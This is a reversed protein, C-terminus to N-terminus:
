RFLMLNLEYISSHISFYILLHQSNIFRGCIVADLRICFTRMNCDSLSTTATTFFAHALLFVFDFDNFIFDPLRLVNDQEGPSEIVKSITDPSRCRNIIKHM